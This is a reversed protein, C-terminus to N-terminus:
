VLTSLQGIRDVRTVSHPGMAQGEHIPALWDTVIVPNCLGTAALSLPEEPGPPGAPLGQDSVRMQSRHLAPGYGMGNQLVSAIPLRDNPITM